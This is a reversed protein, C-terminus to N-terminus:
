MWNNNSTEIKYLWLNVYHKVTSFDGLQFALNGGATHIIISGIDAKKHWFLQSTTIAQIKSPEIIMNDIDWAGVQKIIFDDNIYLRNNQFGFYVIVGVFLLYLLVGYAYDFFAPQIFKAFAFFAIVPLLMSLFISFVLKRYNPKLVVGKQPIKGFLLDFIAEKETKNCGPIEIVTKSNEKDSSTAQKIKIELINMKKQFYNSTITTIQVKEPKVITNKTSLLGFTLFLSGNQKAVKYDFYKFVVRLLNIILVLAFMVIFFLVISSIVSRQAVYADFQEEKFESEALFNKSNEYVTMFFALILGLTKVYNSTIGVKLLSLFSIKIFSDKEASETEMVVQEESLFATKKDSELLREKLVLALSHSIAKIKGEKKASGATDVNLEYVGILRQILSQNIDVQQIKDLQIITKTKNLIGESIIFEENEKDLYFTFNLYKLYAVIGIIIVVLISGLLLYVKNLEDFKFLWIVAIPWLGRGWKQVTDVFLILIGISSQRQPQHLSDEM